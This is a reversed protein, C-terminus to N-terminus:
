GGYDSFPRAYTAMPRQGFPPRFSAVKALTVLTSTPCAAPTGPRGNHAHTDARLAICDLNSVGHALPAQACGQRVSRGRGPPFLPCHAGRVRAQCGAFFQGTPSSRGRNVKLGYGYAAITMPWKKCSFTARQRSGARPGIHCFASRSMPGVAPPPGTWKPPLPSPPSPRKDIWSSIEQRDRPAPPNLNAGGV